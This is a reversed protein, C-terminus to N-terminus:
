LISGHGGWPDEASLSWRMMPKLNRLSLFVVMKVVKYHDHLSDHLSDHLPFTLLKLAQSSCSNVHFLLIVNSTLHSSRLWAPFVSCRAREARSLMATQNRATQILQQMPSFFFVRRTQGPKGWNFNLTMLASGGGYWWHPLKWHVVYMSSRALFNLM